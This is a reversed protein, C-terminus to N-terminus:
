VSYRSRFKNWQKELYEEPKHGPHSHLWNTFNCIKVSVIGSHPLKFVGEKESGVRVQSFPIPNLSSCWYDELRPYNECLLSSQYKRSRNACYPCTDPNVKIRNSMSMKYTKGCNRCIWNFKYQTNPHFMSPTLNGNETPHWDAALLPHHKEFSDEVKTVVYQQLISLQDRMIDINPYLDRMPFLDKLMTYILDNYIYCIKNELSFVPASIINILPHKQVPLQAGEELIVYVRYYLALEYAKKLDAKIRKGGNVVSHFYSGNFEIVTKCSPLFIDVERGTYQDVHCSKLGPDCKQLYYRVAQEIFSTKGRRACISCGRNNYVRNSLKCKYHHGEPCLFWFARNDSPLIDKGTIGGNRGDDLEKAIQPFKKELCNNPTVEQQKGDGCQPCRFDGHRDTIRIPKPFAYHCEPCKLYVKEHTSPSYEEPKRSNREYDWWKSVEPIETKLNYHSSIREGKCYPCYTIESRKKIFNYTGVRLRTFKNLKQKWSNDCVPCRFDYKYSSSFVVESPSLPNRECDYLKLLQQKNENKCWDSLSLSGKKM